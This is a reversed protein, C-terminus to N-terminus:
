PRTAHGHHGPARLGNWGDDNWPDDTSGDDTSGDDTSGGDTSGDDTSGDDTSGDDTSGDDTSGDDTSGDDTSGDDTSDDYGGDWAGDGDDCAQRVYTVRLTGGGIRQLEDPTLPKAPVVGPPYGDLAILECRQIEADGIAFVARCLLECQQHVMCATLDSRYLAMSAYATETVPDSSCMCGALTVAAMGMLWRRLM